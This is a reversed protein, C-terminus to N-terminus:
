PESRQVFYDFHCVFNSKVVDFRARSMSFAFFKLNLSLRRVKLLNQTRTISVQVLGCTWSTTVRIMLAMCQRELEKADNMAEREKKRMNKVSHMAGGKESMMRAETAELECLRAQLDGALNEFHLGRERSAKLKESLRAEEDRLHSVQGSLTSVRCDLDQAAFEKHEANM